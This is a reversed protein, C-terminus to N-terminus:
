RTKWCMGVRAIVGVSAAGLKPLSGHRARPSEALKRREQPQEQRCCILRAGSEDRRKTRARWAFRVERKIPQVGVDQIIRRDKRVVRRDRESDADTRGAPIKQGRRVVGPGVINLVRRAATPRREVHLNPLAIIKRGKTEGLKRGPRMGRETTRGRM